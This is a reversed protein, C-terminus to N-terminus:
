MLGLWPGQCSHQAQDFCEKRVKYGVWMYNHWSVYNPQHVYYCSCTSTGTTCLCTYGTSPSALAVQTCNKNDYSINTDVVPIVIAASSLSLVATGRIVKMSVVQGATLPPLTQTATFLSAGNAIPIGCYEVIQDGELLEPVHTDYLAQVVAPGTTEDADYIIGLGAITLQACGTGDPDTCMLWQGAFIAFDQFNVYCDGTLDAPLKGWTGCDATPDSGVVMTKIVPSAMTGNTTLYAYGPQVYPTKGKVAFGFSGTGAVIESGTNAEFGARGWTGGPCVWTPPTVLTVYGPVIHPAQWDIDSIKQVAADWNQINLMFSHLYPMCPDGSSTQGQYDITYQFQGIFDSQDTASITAEVIYVVNEPPGSIKSVDYGSLRSPLASVTCTEVTASHQAGSKGAFFFPGVGPIVETGGPAFGRQTPITGAPADPQTSCACVETLKMGSFPPFCPDVYLYSSVFMPRPYFLTYTQGGWGGFKIIKGTVPNYISWSGTTPITKDVSAQETGNYNPVPGYVQKIAGAPAAFLLVCIVVLLSNKM